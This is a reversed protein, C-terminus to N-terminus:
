SGGRRLFKRWNPRSKIWRWSRGEARRALAWRRLAARRVRRPPTPAAGPVRVFSCRSTRRTRLMVSGGNDDSTISTNGEVALILGGPLVRSVIGVHDPWNNSDFQYCVVDGRLPKSTVLGQGRAWGLFFGVSATKAPDLPRGAQRYAWQVFAMCWPYGRGPLGDADQYQDVRPGRNSGPPQEKVGVEKLAIRLAKERYTV